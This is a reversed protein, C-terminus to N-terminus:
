YKRGKWKVEGGIFVLLPLLAVYLIYYIEFFVIFKLHSIKGYYKLFPFLFLTDVATKLLFFYGFYTFSFFPSLIILWHLMFGPAMTAIGFLGTDKGGTAWRRRQSLLERLTKVPRTHVLTLRDIPYKFNWKKSKSISKYLAYDETVSFKIKRYGGVNEYAEKRFALNNGLCGTPKGVTAAGPAISLLLDWDLAQIGSFITNAPNIHTVGGVIGTKEDFYKLTEDIWQPPVECDADTLFIIEGSAKDIGQSLANTKGRLHHDHSVDIRKVFPFRSIFEDIISPTRDTSQDNAIIVELKDKPYRLGVLSELCARINFEEDKAAVVVSVFPLNSLVALTTPTKKALLAAFSYFSLDIVYIAFIIFALTELNM